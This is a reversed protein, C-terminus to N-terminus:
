DVTTKLLDIFMVLALSASLCALLCFVGRSAQKSIAQWSLLIQLEISFGGHSRGTATYQRSLEEV